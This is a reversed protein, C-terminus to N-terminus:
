LNDRVQALPADIEIIQKGKLDDLSFGAFETRQLKVVKYGLKSLTRRIQRNKGESMIVTWHKNAGSLKLHSIGDELTLGRNIASLDSDTLPKDIELKYTKSKRYKPHTLKHSLEGDNTLLLLGSTDKDLRGATNLQKFEPPLLDYVTPASGQARKSCVYGVPKNLLVYRKSSPKILVGNLEVADDNDVTAGLKAIQGNLKVKKARIYDDAERRSLSTSSAIYQNLRM